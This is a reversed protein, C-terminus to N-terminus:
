YVRPQELESDDPEVPLGRSRHDARRWRAANAELRAVSDGVRAPTINQGRRRLLRSTATSRDLTGATNAYVELLDDQHIGHEVEFHAEYRQGSMDIVALTAPTDLQQDTVVV